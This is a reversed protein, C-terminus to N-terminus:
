VASHGTSIDLGEFIVSSSLLGQPPLGQERKEKSTGQFVIYRMEKMELVFLLKGLNDM